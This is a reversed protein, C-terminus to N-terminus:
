LSVEDIRLRLVGVPVRVEVIDGVQRGLLAQATWVMTPTAAPASIARYSPTSWGEWPHSTNDDAM